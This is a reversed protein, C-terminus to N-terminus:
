KNVKNELEAIKKIYIANNQQAITLEKELEAIRECKFDCYEKRPYNRKKWWVSCTRNACKIEDSM